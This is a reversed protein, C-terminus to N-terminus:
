PHFRGALLADFCAKAHERAATFDAFSVEAETRGDGTPVLGGHAHRVTAKRSTLSSEIVYPGVTASERAERAKEAVTVAPTGVPAGRLTEFLWSNRPTITRGDDDRWVVIGRKASVVEATVEVHPSPGVHERRVVRLTVNGDPALALLEAVTPIMGM